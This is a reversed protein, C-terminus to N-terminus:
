VKTVKVRDDFIGMPVLEWTGEPAESDNSGTYIIKKGSLLEWSLEYIAEQMDSALLKHEKGDIRFYYVYQGIQHLEERRIKRFLSSEITVTKGAADEITLFTGVDEKCTAVVRWAGPLSIKGFSFRALRTFKVHDGVQIKPIPRVMFIYWDVIEKVLKGVM